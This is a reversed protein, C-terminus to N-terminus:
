IDKRRGDSGFYKFYTNKIVEYASTALSSVTEKLRRIRAITTSYEQAGGTTLNKQLKLAKKLEAKIQINIATRIKKIMIEETPIGRKVVMPINLKQDDDDKAQNGTHAKIDGKEGSEGKTESITEKDAEVGGMLDAVELQVGAASEQVVRTGEKVREMQKKSILKDVAETQSLKKPAVEPKNHHSEV